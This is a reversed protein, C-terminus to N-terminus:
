HRRTAQCVMLDHVFPKYWTRGLMYTATIPLNDHRWNWDEDRLVEEFTRM